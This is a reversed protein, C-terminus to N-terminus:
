KPPPPAIFSPPPGMPAAMQPAYPAPAQGWANISPNTIVTTQQPQYYKTRARWALYGGVGACLVVAIVIGAIVGAAIGGSSADLRDFRVSYRMNFCFGINTSHCRSIFFPPYFPIPPSFVRVKLPPFPHPSSKEEGYSQVAPNM